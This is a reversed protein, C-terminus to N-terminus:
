PRREATHLRIDQIIAGTANGLEPMAEALAQHFVTRGSTASNIATSANSAELTEAILEMGVVLDAAKELEAVGELDVTILM